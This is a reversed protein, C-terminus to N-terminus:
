WIKISARLTEWNLAGVMFMVTIVIVPILLLLFQARAWTKVAPCNTGGCAWVILLIFGVVPICTLLIRGFWGFSSPTNEYM